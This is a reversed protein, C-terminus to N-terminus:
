SPTRPIIMTDGSRFAIQEKTARDLDELRLMALARHQL